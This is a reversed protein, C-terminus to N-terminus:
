MPFLINLLCCPSKTSSKSEMEKREYKIPKSFDMPGSCKISIDVIGWNAKGEITESEDTTLLRKEILLSKESPGVDHVIGNAVVKMGSENILILEAELFHCQRKGKVFGSVTIVSSESVAKLETFTYGKVKWTVALSPTPFLLFLSIVIAFIARTLNTSQGKM